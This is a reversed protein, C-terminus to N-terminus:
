PAVNEAPLAYISERVKHESPPLTRLFAVLAEGDEDALRSWSAVLQGMPGRIPSGDRHRGDRIAAIIEADKWGGLGAEPHSTLNSSYLTGTGDESPLAVFERDGQWARAGDPGGKDGPLRPTHCDLCRMLTALYRGRALDDTPTTSGGATVPPAHWDMDLHDNEHDDSSMKPFSRLFEVLAAADADSLAAYSQWPMVPSLRGGEPRAGTRLAAVVEADTWGGIGTEVDSTINVKNWTGWPEAVESGGAYSRAYDVGDPGSPTHCFVCGALADLYAGREALAQDLQRATDPGDALGSDPASDGDPDAAGANIADPAGDSTAGQGEAPDSAERQGGCGAALALIAVTAATTTALPGFRSM